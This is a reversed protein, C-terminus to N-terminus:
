YLLKRPCDLDRTQNNLKRKFSNLTQDLFGLYESYYEYVCNQHCIAKFECIGSRVLKGPEATEEFDPINLNTRVGRFGIRAELLHATLIQKCGCTHQLTGTKVVPGDNKWTQQTSAKITGNRGQDNQKLKSEKSLVSEEGDLDKM